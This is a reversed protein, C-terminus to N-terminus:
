EAAVEGTAFIEAFRRGALKEFRERLAPTGHSPADLEVREVRHMPAFLVAPETREGSNLQRSFDDLSQLEVARLTVGELALDLLVGFLKERPNQLTVLVAAGPTFPSTRKPARVPTPPASDSSM